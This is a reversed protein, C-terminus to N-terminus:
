KVGPSWLFKNQKANWDIKTFGNKVLIGEM